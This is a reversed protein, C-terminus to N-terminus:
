AAMKLALDLAQTKRRSNTGTLNNDLQKEVNSANQVHDCHYTVTNLAQWWSGRAIEAGPMTDATQLLKVIRNQNRERVKEAKDSNDEKAPDIIAFVQRLYQVFKDKTLSNSALFDAAEKFKKLQISTESVLDLAIQPDYGNNAHHRFRLLDKAKGLSIQNACYLRNGLSQVSISKGYIHPNSFAVLGTVEDDRGAVKIPEAIEAVAWVHRGKASAGAAHMKMNGDAVVREFFDFMESNQTPEWTGGVVDFPTNDSDRCLAFRNPVTVLDGGIEAQIPYKSVTWDLGAQEMVERASANEDLKTGVKHFGNGGVHTAQEIAYTAVSDIAHGEHGNNISVFNNM